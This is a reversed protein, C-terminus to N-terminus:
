ECVGSVLGEVPNCTEGDQCDGDVLCCRGKDCEGIGLNPNCKQPICGNPYTVGFAAGPPVCCVPDYVEGM